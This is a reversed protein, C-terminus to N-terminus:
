SQFRFSRQGLDFFSRSKKYESLKLFKKALHKLCSHSGLSCCNGFFLYNESNGM